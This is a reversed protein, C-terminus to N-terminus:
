GARTPEHDDDPAAVADGDDGSKRVFGALDRVMSGFDLTPRADAPGQDPGADTRGGDTGTIGGVTSAGETLGGETVDGLISEGFPPAAFPTAVSGSASQSAPPEPLVGSFLAAGSGPLSGPDASADPQDPQRFVDALFKALHESTAYEWEESMFSELESRLDQATAYRDQKSGAVARAVMRRLNPPAEPCAQGLDPVPVPSGLLTSYIQFDTFGDFPHRNALCYYLVLGAAFLDARHDPREGRVTEPALYLVKGKLAGVKTAVSSDVAKAVGFDTLKVLGDESLLVNHPTVDRHVIALPRGGEDVASHAAALGACMDSAIRCAISIPMAQGLRALQRLMVELNWGRVYEMVVYYDRGVKGLDFIQVVNSHSIHAALRAEELLMDVFRRETVLHPLIRKVVVQKAFGEPGVQRGLYVEAMGGAGIRELLQYRGLTEPGRPAPADHAPDGSGPGPEAHPPSSAAARQGLVGTTPRRRRGLHEDIERPAAVMRLRSVLGREEADFAPRLPGGCRQCHEELAGNGVASKLAMGVPRMQENRCSPCAFPLGVSVVRVGKKRIGSLARVLPLSIRALYADFGPGDFLPGLREMGDATVESVASAIVVVTGDLGQVIREFRAQRDLVGSLHLVTLKGELEKEVRLVPHTRPPVGLLRDIIRDAGPVVEPARQGTGFLFYAGLDHDPEAECRCEPCTVPPPAGGLVVRFQYRLDLPQSLEAGCRGCVFPVYLSVLQGRAGLGKLMSFELVLPPRCRVFYYHEMRLGRLLSMWERLGAATLDDVGDLDFVV